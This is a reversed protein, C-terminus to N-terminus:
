CGKKSEETDRHRRPLAQQRAVSIRGTGVSAGHGVFVVLVKALVESVQDGAASSM